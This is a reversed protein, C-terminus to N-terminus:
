IVSICTNLHYFDSLFTRFDPKTVQYRVATYRAAVPKLAFQAV